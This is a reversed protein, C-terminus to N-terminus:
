MQFSAGKGQNSTAQMRRMRSTVQSASPSDRGDGSLRACGRVVQLSQIRTVLSRHCVWFIKSLSSAHSNWFALGHSFRLVFNRGRSASARYLCVVPLFVQCSVLRSRFVERSDQEMHRDFAVFVTIGAFEYM